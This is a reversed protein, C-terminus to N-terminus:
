TRELFRRARPVAVGYQWLAVIAVIALALGFCVSLVPVDIAVIVGAVAIATGVYVPILGVASRVHQAAVAQVVRRHREEVPEKGRIQRQVARRQRWSLVGEPLEWAPRLRKNRLGVILGIVVVLLGVGAVALSPWLLLPRTGGDAASSRGRPVLLVQVTSTLVAALLAAGIVILWARRSRERRKPSDTENLLRAAEDWREEDHMGVPGYEGLDPWGATAARRLEFGPLSGALCVTSM